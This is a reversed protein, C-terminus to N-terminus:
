DLPPGVPAPPEPVIPPAEPSPDSAVAADAAAQDIPPTAETPSETPPPIASSLQSFDPLWSPPSPPQPVAPGQPFQPAQSFPAQPFQPTWAGPMGNGNGSPAREQRFSGPSFPAGAGAFAAAPAAPESISPAVPSSGNMPPLLGKASFIEFLVARAQWVAKKLALALTPDNLNYAMANALAIQASDLHWAVEWWWARENGQQYGPQM